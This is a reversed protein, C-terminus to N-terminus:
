VKDGTYLFRSHKDVTKPYSSSIQVWTTTKQRYLDTFQKFVASPSHPYAIIALIPEEFFASEQTKSSSLFNNFIFFPHTLGM